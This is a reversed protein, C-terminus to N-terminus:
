GTVVSSNGPKGGVVSESVTMADPPVLGPFSSGEGAHISAAHILHRGAWASLATYGVMNCQNSPVATQTAHLLGRGSTTPTYRSLTSSM